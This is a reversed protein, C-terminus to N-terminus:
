QVSCLMESFLDKKIMCFIFLTSCIHVLDNNVSLQLLLDSLDFLKCRTVLVFLYCVCVLVCARFFSLENRKM